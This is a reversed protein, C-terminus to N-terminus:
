RRRAAEAIYYFPTDRSAIQFSLKYIVYDGNTAPYQTSQIRLSGGLTTRNDILFKVKIGQETFEPIGIMGTRSNLIRLTNTLPILADKVVLINNDIFANINGFRNIETVQNLAAGSFAYNSINKNTAEFRLITNTDRAIQQSIQKFTALGPQNRTIINGKIFNGTLCRLHIGIDPPQTVSSTVVNGEYILATGYSVRGAEVRIIKPTYNLNYPSTITLIYDQTARDINELLVEAENQLPNGYRTGTVTISFPSSFIKLKGDVEISVRVIRPDIENM